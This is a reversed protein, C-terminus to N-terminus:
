LLEGVHIEEIVAFSQLNLSFGSQSSPFNPYRGRPGLSLTLVFCLSLAILNLSMPLVSTGSKNWDDYGNGSRGARFMFSLLSDFLIM